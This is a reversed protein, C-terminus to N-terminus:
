LVVGSLNCDFVSNVISSCPDFSSLFLTKIAQKKHNKKDVNSSLILTKSKRRDHTFVILMPGNFGPPSVRVKKKKMRLSPGLM